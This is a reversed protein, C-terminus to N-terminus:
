FYSTNANPLYCKQVDDFVYMPLIKCLILFHVYKQLFVRVPHIGNKLSFYKIKTFKISPPLSTIPSAFSPSFAECFSLYKKLSMGSFSVLFM